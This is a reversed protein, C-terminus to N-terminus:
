LFYRAIEEDNDERSKHISNFGQDSELSSLKRQIASEYNQTLITLKSALVDNESQLDNMLQKQEFM